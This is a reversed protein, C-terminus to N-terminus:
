RVTRNRGVSAIHYPRLQASLGALSEVRTKSRDRHDLEGLCITLWQEPNSRRANIGSALEPDPFAAGRHQNLGELECLKKLFKGARWSIADTKLSFQRRWNALRPLEKGRFKKSLM